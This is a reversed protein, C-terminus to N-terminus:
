LTEALIAVICMKNKGKNILAVQGSWQRHTRSKKEEESTVSSTKRVSLNKQLQKRIKEKSRMIMMSSEENEEEEAHEITCLEVMEIEATPM